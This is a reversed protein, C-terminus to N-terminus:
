SLKNAIKTRRPLRSAWKRLNTCRRDLTRQMPHRCTRKNDKQQMKRERRLLREASRLSRFRSIREFRRPIVMNAVISINNNLAWRDEELEKPDVCEGPRGLYVYKDKFSVVDTYLLRGAREVNSDSIVSLRMLHQMATAGAENSEQPVTQKQEEYIGQEGQYILM